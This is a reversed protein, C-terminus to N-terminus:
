MMFTATGYRAVIQTLVHELWQVIMSVWPSKVCSKVCQFAPICCSGNLANAIIAGNAVSHNAIGPCHREEAYDFSTVITFMFWTRWFRFWLLPLGIALVGKHDSSRYLYHRILVCDPGGSDTSRQCPSATVPRSLFTASGPISGM